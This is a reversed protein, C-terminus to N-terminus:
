SLNLIVWRFSRNFVGLPWHKFIIYIKGRIRQHTHSLNFTSKTHLRRGNMWEYMHQLKTPTMTVQCHSLKPCAGAFIHTWSLTLEHHKHGLSHSMMHHCLDPDVNAWTIAQQRIVGLWWWSWRFWHQSIMLVTWHCEDSPFKVLYVWGDTM